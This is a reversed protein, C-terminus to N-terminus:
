AESGVLAAFRQAFRFVDQYSNYLSVPAVRFIDPERWDGLVGESALRACLSKGNQFIQISLQSGRQGSGSPTIVSFKRSADQKLLFELYSTLSM